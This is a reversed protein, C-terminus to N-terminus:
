IINKYNVAHIIKKKIGISNKKKTEIPINRKNYLVQKTEQYNDNKTTDDDEYSTRFREHKEIINENLANKQILEECKTDLMYFMKDNLDM